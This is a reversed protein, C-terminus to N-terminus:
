FGFLPRGPSFDLHQCPQIGTLSYPSLRSGQSKEALKKWHNGRNRPKHGEGDEFHMWEIEAPTMISGEKRKVWIRRSYGDHNRLAWRSWEPYNKWRLIKLKIVDELDGKRHMTVYDWTGRVLVHVDKPPYDNLRCCSEQEQLWEYDLTPCWGSLCITITSLPPHWSCPLM